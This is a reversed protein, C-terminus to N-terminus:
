GVAQTLRQQAVTGDVGAAAELQDPAIDKELQRKEVGLVAKQRRQHTEAAVADGEPRHAM